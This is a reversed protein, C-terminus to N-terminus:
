GIGVTHATIAEVIEDWLEPYSFGHGLGEVVLLKAGPIAEVTARGHELQVLPDQAGHLVLTPIKVSNLAQKRSGSALIAAFQRAFGAPYFGRDYSLGSIESEMEEDFKDSGGAFIRFVDVRHRISAEREQPPFSFLAEMAEPTPDPLSPEGTSSEMSILSLVRAQYEIASSFRM